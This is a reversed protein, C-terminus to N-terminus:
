DPGPKAENKTEEQVPQVWSPVQALMPTKWHTEGTATRPGDLHNQPHLGTRATELRLRGSKEETEEATTAGSSISLFDKRKLYRPDKERREDGSTVSEFEGPTM